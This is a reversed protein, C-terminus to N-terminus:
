GASGSAALRQENLKHQQALREANSMKKPKERKANTVRIITFLRNLHWTDYNTPIGLELMWYYILESTITESSRRGPQNPMENFWTATQPDNIYEGIADVNEQSLRGLVEDPVNPTLCMARVYSFIEEASMATKDLFPRKHIQEWKSLSTLSHELELVVDDPYVFEQNEEDFHETGLVRITLM